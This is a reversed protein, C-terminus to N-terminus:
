HQSSTEPQYAREDEHSPMSDNVYHQTQDHEDANTPKTGIFPFVVKPVIFGWILIGSLITLFSMVWDALRDEWPFDPWLFAIAFGAVFLHIIVAVLTAAFVSLRATLKKRDSGFEYNMSSKIIMVAIFAAAFFWLFM